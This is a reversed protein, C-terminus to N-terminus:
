PSSLSWALLLQGPYYTAWVLNSAIMHLAPTDPLTFKRLVLIIDSVIFLAMGVFVLPNRVSLSFLAVAFFVLVYLALAPAASGAPRWIHPLIALTFAALFLGTAPRWWEEIFLSLDSQPYLLAAYCFHGFLFAVLGRLFAPKGDYALFADGLAGFLLAAVLLPSQGLLLVYLALLLVPLTKWAARM